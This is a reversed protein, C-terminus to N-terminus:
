FRDPRYPTLDVPPEHGAALAAIIQGTIAGLTLGFQGHGLALLVKPHGPAQGIAPLSDPLLPSHGMWRAAGKDELAPLMRKALRYLMDARRWDPAAGVSAFEITGALRMGEAMPTAAFHAEGDALPGGIETGPTPLMLHYGRSSELPLSVGLRKLYPNAHAGLAIVL